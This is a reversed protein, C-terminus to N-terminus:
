LEHSGTIIVFLQLSGMIVTYTCVLAKDMKTVSDSDMKDVTIM